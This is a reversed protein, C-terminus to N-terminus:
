DTEHARLHTYSVPGTHWFNRDLPVGGFKDLLRGEGDMIAVYAKGEDLNAAGLLVRGSGDPAEPCVTYYSLLCWHDKVQFAQM